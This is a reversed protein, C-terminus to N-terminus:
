KTVARSKRSRVIGRKSFDMPIGNDVIPNIGDDHWKGHFLAGDFPIKLMREHYNYLLIGQWKRSRKSGNIEWMWPGEKPVMSKLLVSKRWIAPQANIRYNDWDPALHYSPYKESPEHVGNSFQFRGVEPDDAIWDLAKSIEAQNVPGELLFDELMFFVFPTKVDQLTRMNLQGWSVRDGPKYYRPCHIDLGPFSFTKSESTLVIPYPCDPWYKKFLIFFPEWLDSYKDCSSVYLTCREDIIKKSM